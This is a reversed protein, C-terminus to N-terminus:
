RGPGHFVLACHFSAADNITGSGNYVAGDPHACLPRTETVARSSNTESALLTSPATGHEVWTTRATLEGAPSAVPGTSDGCHGNGPLRAQRQVLGIGAAARLDRLRAARGAPVAAHGAGGPRAARHRGPRRHLRGRQGAGSARSSPLHGLRRAPEM